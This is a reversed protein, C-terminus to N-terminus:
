DVIRIKIVGDGEGRHTTTQLRPHMYPAADRAVVCAKMMLETKADDDSARDAQDVISRMTRLMVDLPTVGHKAAEIAYAVKRKTKSGKPRGSGPNHAHGPKYRPASPNPNSM